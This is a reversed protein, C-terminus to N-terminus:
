PDRVPDRGVREMTMRVCDQNYHVREKRTRWVLWEYLEAFARHLQMYYRPFSDAGDIDPIGFVKAIYHGRDCYGPRAEITITAGEIRLEFHHDVVVWDNVGM